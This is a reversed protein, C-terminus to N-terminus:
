QLTAVHEKQEMSDVSSTGVEPDRNESSTRGSHYGKFSLVAPNKDYNLNWNM